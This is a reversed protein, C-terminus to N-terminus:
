HVGVEMYRPLTRALLKASHPAMESPKLCAQNGASVAAVLPALNLQFPYNWPAIILVKGLSEYRIWSKGPQQLLPTSVSRPKLWSRLNKLAYSVEGRLSGLEIVVTEFAPKGLDAKLAEIIQLEESKLFNLIGKLQKKAQQIQM